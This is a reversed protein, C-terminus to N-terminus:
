VPLGHAEGVTVIMHRVARNVDVNGNSDAGDVNYHASHRQKYLLGAYTASLPINSFKAVPPEHAGVRSM